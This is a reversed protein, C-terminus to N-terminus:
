KKVTARSLQAERLMVYLGSAVVLTAGFITASDPVESFLFFAIISAFPLRFYRLPSVASVDGVRMAATVCYYGVVSLLIMLALPLISEPAVAWEAGRQWNLFVGLPVLSSFAYLSLLPTSAEAPALRSALDRLALFITGFVALLDTWGLGESTPRIIIMVGIMGIAVAVWRRPGVTERLILAALLTLLLPMAQMVAAVTSLESLKFAQFLFYAATAEFLNRMLVVPHFYLRSLVRTRTAKCIILFVLGGGVGMTILVLGTPTNNSSLKVMSDASAFTAMGMIMLIMARLNSM